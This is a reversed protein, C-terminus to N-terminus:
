KAHIIVTKAISAILLLWGIGVMFREQTLGNEGTRILRDFENALCTPMSEEVVDIQIAVTKQPYLIHLLKRWLRIQQKYEKEPESAPLLDNDTPPCAAWKFLLNQIGTSRIAAIRRNELQWRIFLFCFIFILVLGLIAIGTDLVPASVLKPPWTSSVLIAGMLGIYVAFGSYAMDEKHNHYGNITSLLGVLIQSAGEAHKSPMEATSTNM